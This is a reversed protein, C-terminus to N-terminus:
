YVHDRVPGSLLKQPEHIKQSLFNNARRLKYALIHGLVMYLCLLRTLCSCLVFSDNVNDTFTPAAHLCETVTNTKYKIIGKHLVLKIRFTLSGKNECQM